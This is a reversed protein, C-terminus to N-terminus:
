RNQQSRSAVIVSWDRIYEPNWASACAQRLHSSRAMAPSGASICIMYPTAPSRRSVSNAASQSGPYSPWGTRIPLAAALCNWSSTYPSTISASCWARM